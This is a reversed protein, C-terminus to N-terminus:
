HFVARDERTCVTYMLALVPKFGMDPLMDNGREGGGNGTERKVASDILPM